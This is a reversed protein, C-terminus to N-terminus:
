KLKNIEEYIRKAINELFENKDQGLSGYLYKFYYEKLEEKSTGILIKKNNFFLYINFAYFDIDLNNIEYEITEKGKLNVLNIEIDNENYSYVEVLKKKIDILINKKTMMSFGCGGHFTGILKISTDMKKIKYLYVAPLILLYILYILIKIFM